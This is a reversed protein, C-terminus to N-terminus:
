QFSGRHNAPELRIDVREEAAAVPQGTQELARRPAIMSTRDASFWVLIPFLFLLFWRRNRHFSVFLVDETKGDRLHLTMGPWLIVNTQTLRNMIFLHCVLRKRPEVTPRLCPHRPGNTKQPLLIHVLRRRHPQQALNGSLFM